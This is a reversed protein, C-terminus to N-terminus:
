KMLGKELRKALDITSVIIDYGEILWWPQENIGGNFHFSNYRIYELYMEYILKVQDSVMYTFYYIPCTHILTDPLFDNIM